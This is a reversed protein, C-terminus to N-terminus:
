DGYGYRLEREGNNKYLIVRVILGKKKAIQIMHQTGRSEEDWFALLVDANEAMEVNRRYGASKGYRDWDAPYVELGCGHERAFCEGLMDAGRAGGSLITFDRPNGRDIVDFMTSRLLEYDRFNRSGAIIIRTNRKGFDNM